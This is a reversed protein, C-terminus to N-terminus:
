AGSAMLVRLLVSVDRRGDFVAAIIVRERRTDFSYFVLHNRFVIVRYRDNYRRGREPFETLELCAARLGSMYDM